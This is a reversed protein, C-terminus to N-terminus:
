DNVLILNIQGIGGKVSVDLLNESGPARNVYYEGDRDFGPANIEGLVGDIDVRVPSDSPLRLTLEGFGCTFRANLDTQRKGSLDVEAEGALAKFEFRSLPNNRLNLKIEGGTMSFDFRKIKMDGLDFEGVGGGMNIRLDMPINDTFRLNWINEKDEDLDMPFDFEPTEILLRGEENRREYFVEPKWERESFLCKAEFTESDYSDIHLEGAPFRVKVKLIEINNFEVRDSFDYQGGSGTLLAVSFMVVIILLHYRKGKRVM